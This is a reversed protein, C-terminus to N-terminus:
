RSAYASQTWITPRPEGTLMEGVAEMLKKFPGLKMFAEAHTKETWTGIAMAEAERTLLQMRVYGPQTIALKLITEQWTRIFDEMSENKVPYIMTATYM